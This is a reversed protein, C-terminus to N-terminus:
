IFRKAVNSRQRLQKNFFHCHNERREKERKRERARSRTRETETERAHASKRGQPRMLRCNTATYQVREIVSGKIYIQLVSADPCNGVFELCVTNKELQGHHQGFHTRFLLPKFEMKRCPGQGEVLVFDDVPGKASM